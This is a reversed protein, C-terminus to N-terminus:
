KDAPVPMAEYSKRINPKTRPDSFETEMTGPPAASLQQEKARVQDRAARRDKQRVLDSIAMPREMLIMGDREITQGKWGSPMMGPHRNSPVATWGGRALTVQYAPDEQNYITKRKWNYDWGDPVEGTPIYFKDVGSEIEGLHGMIEAARRDAMARPDEDRMEPRMAPRLSEKVVQEMAQPQPQPQQM